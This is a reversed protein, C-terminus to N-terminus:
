DGEWVRRWLAVSVGLTSGEPSSCWCLDENWTEQRVRKFSCSPTLSDKELFAYGEGFTPIFTGQESSETKINTHLSAISGKNDLFGYGNGFTKHLVDASASVPFIALGGLLLVAIFVKSRSLQRSPEQHNKM